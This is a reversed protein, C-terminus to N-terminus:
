LTHWYNVSLTIPTPKCPIIYTHMYTIKNLLAWASLVIGTLMTCVRQWTAHGMCGDLYKWINALINAEEGVGLNPSQGLGYRWCKSVKFNWIETLHFAISESYFSNKDAYKPRYYVGIKPTQKLTSRGLMKHMTHWSVRKDSHMFFTPWLVPPLRFTLFEFNRSRPVQDGYKIGLDRNRNGTLYLGIPWMCCGLYNPYRM